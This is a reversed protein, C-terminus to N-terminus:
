SEEKVDVPYNRDYFDYKKMEELIENPSLYMDGEKKEISEKSQGFARRVFYAFDYMFKCYFLPCFNLALDIEVSVGPPAVFASDYFRNIANQNRNTIQFCM